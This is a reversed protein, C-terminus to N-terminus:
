ENNIDMPRSYREMMQRIEPELIKECEVPLCGSAAALKHSVRRNLMLLSRALEYARATFQRIVEGKRLLSGEIRLRELKSIKAREKRFETLWKQAETSDCTGASECSARELAWRIVERLNYTSDANRPCQDHKAWRSITSPNVEFLGAIVKRSLSDFDSSM